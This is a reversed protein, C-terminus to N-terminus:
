SIEGFITREEWIGAAQSIILRRFNHILIIIHMAKKTINRISDGTPTGILNM